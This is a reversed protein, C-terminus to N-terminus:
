SAPPKFKADDVAVNHKVENVETFTIEGAPMRRRMHFPLKVGDVERYDSYDYVIDLLESRGPETESPRVWFAAQQVRRVLLGSRTDFYMKEIRGGTSPAEVFYTSRGELTAKGKLMMQPFLEKLKIERHFESDERLYALEAGKIEEVPSYRYKSWAVQGDFGSQVKSRDELTFVVLRKNPAKEYIEMKAMGEPRMTAQVTVRSTLKEFAAKGGLAQVYKELVQDLTPLDNTSTVSISQAQVASRNGPQYVLTALLLSFLLAIAIRKM